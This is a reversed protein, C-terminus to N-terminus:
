LVLWEGYPNTEIKVQEIFDKLEERVIYVIRYELLKFDLPPKKPEELAIGRLNSWDM